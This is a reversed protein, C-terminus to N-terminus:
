NRLKPIVKEAIQKLKPIQEENFPYYFILENIGVKLYRKVIKQFDDESNFVIRAESGYVLLSHRLTQPDRGIKNFSKDLLENRLRTSELRVDSPIGMEGGFSKWTDAYRATIKLMSPGLVGIVFPPIPKQVLLPAMCTNNLQYYRGQYDTVPNRLCKDVIEVVERFHTVQESPNWNNIGIMVCSTDREGSVGTGLGTELRGNSLHDM